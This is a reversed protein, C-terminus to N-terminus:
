ISTINYNYKHVLRNNKRRAFIHGVRHTHDENHYPHAKHGTHKDFEIINIIEWNERNFYKVMENKRFYRNKPYTILDKENKAIHYFIYIYGNEKVSSLLKKMKKEISIHKNSERNLSRYCYIFDYKRSINNEYYNTNNVTLNDLSEYELRSNLGIVDFSDITGGNIYLPDPEFITVNSGHKAFSLAHHGDSDDVVLVNATDFKEKLMKMYEYSTRQVNGFVSGTNKIRKM